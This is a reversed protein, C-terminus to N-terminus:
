TVRSLNKKIEYSPHTLKQTLEGDNTLLMLGESEIDLRGVPYLRATQPPILDLVTKRGLEDSTTSVYGVPKYILFYLHEQNTVPSPAIAKGNVTVTDQQPDIRQGVLATQGNVKVNGQQVMAEAKRRSAVGLQALYAHIKPKERM